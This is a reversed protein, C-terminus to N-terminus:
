GNARRSRQVISVSRALPSNMVRVPSTLSVPPTAMTAAAIAAAANPSRTAPGAAEHFTNAAEVAVGVNVGVAVGVGVGVAVDVGVGVTV